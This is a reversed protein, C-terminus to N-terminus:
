VNVKVKIEGRLTLGTELCPWTFQGEKIKLHVQHTSCTSCKRQMQTETERGRQVNEVRMRELEKEENEIANSCGLCCPWKPASLVAPCM